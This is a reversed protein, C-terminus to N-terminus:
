WVGYCGGLGGTSTTRGGIGFCLNSTHSSGLNDSEEADDSVRSDFSSRRSAFRSREHYRKPTSSSLLTSSSSSSSWSASSPNKSLNASSSSVNTKWLNNRPFLLRLLNSRTHKKTPKKSYNTYYSPPPTLPPTIKECFTHKPTGPQSEWVFPVAVSVGGHYVRFSPNAMSNEKSMLRSFFRDDQKIQLVKQPLDVEPTASRGMKILERSQQTESIFSLSHSQQAGLFKCSGFKWNISDVCQM